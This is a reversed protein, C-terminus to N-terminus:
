HHMDQVVGYSMERQMDFMKLQQEQYAHYGKLIIMIVGFVLLSEIWGFSYMAPVRGFLLSMDATENFAFLCLSFLGISVARHTGAVLVGNLIVQFKQSFSADKTLAFKAYFRYLVPCILVWLGLSILTQFGNFYWESTELLDSYLYQSVSQIMYGMIFLATVLLVYGIPIRITM